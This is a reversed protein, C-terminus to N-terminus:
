KEAGIIAEYLKKQAEYVEPIMEPTWYTYHETMDDSDKHGVVAKIKPKTVNEAQLYSIFFNRMSHITIGRGKRDIGIKDCIRSFSNYVTHSFMPKDATFGEFVWETNSPAFAFNKVIPVKRAVGTKTSGLGFKDSYTHLVDIYNEHLNEKKLASIEGIRMGTIVALLFMSRQVERAWLGSHYVTRIEDVTMLTREKKEVPRFKVGAIPNRNIIEQEVASELVTNLVGHANNITKASWYESAWVVWDKIVSKTIDSLKMDRFFPLIQNNLIKVYSDLTSDKIPKGTVSQFEYYKGGKDFFGSAYVGFEVSASSKNFEGANYMQQIKRRAKSLVTEGTSLPNSRRGNNDRFQYYYVIRGSSLKRPFIIYPETVRM